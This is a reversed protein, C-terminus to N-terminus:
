NLAYPYSAVIASKSRPFRLARVLPGVCNYLGHDQLLKPASLRVGSVEGSREIRFSLELRANELAYDARARDICSVIRADLTRMKASIDDESLEAADDDADGLDLVDTRNLVPGVTHTRLDGARPRRQGTEVRARRGRRGKRARAARGSPEASPIVECREGTCRTGQGCRSACPDKAQRLQEYALYGASLALGLLLGAIFRM